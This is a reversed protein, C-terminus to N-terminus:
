IILMADGFSFFRYGQKIAEQYASLIYERSSFASVLMLLTSKPLHFNTLLGDIAQFEFGPYIFLDSWGRAAKLQGHHHKAITELTRASTTGVAIVRGGREKARNIKDAASETLEFYEAHMQHDEVRDVQVPRFTGLGVHLTLYAVEIGESEIKSLLEETFHLGATPAAASGVKKSYVTQYREPDELRQHIYPPLPISGLEEFMQEVEQHQSEFQFIWGGAVDSEELAIAIAKGQNFEIVTRPKIRKAPKVLVEWRDDGLPKLVLLEIKAGTEQKKGYLRAPRVRSDNLVLVDHPKLFSRIQHFYSHIWQGTFRDMVLLRSDARQKTPTQAICEKPLHYDFDSVNM